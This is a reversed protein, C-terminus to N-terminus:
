PYIIKAFFCRTNENWDYSAQIRQGPKAAENLAMQVLYDGANDPLKIEPSLKARFIGANKGGIGKIIENLQGTNNAYLGSKSYYSFDNYLCIPTASKNWSHDGAIEVDTVAFYVYSFEDFEQYKRADWTIDMHYYRDHVKVINWAHEALTSTYASRGVVLMCKLGLKQALLVFASSFGDCVALKNIIAGYANHSAPNKSTGRANAQLEDKDYRINKQLIEYLTILLSYEDNSAAKTKILSAIKNATVDLTQNMKEAQPKSHVGTLLIRKGLVSEEIQIKTKDFYIVSPNDGLVIQLVKMLDVDRNLQSCNISVAMSSFAKLMLKYAQQEQISSHAFGLGERLDMKNGLICILTFGSHSPFRYAM